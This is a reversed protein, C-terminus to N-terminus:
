SDEIKMLAVDISIQLDAGMVVFDEIANEIPQIYKDLDSRIPRPIGSQVASLAESKLRDSIQVNYIVPLHAAGDPNSLIEQAEPTLLFRM